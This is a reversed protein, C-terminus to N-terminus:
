LILFALIFVTRSEELSRQFEALKLDQSKEQREERRRAAADNNKQFAPLQEAMVKILRDEIETLDNAEEAAQRRTRAPPAQGLNPDFQVGRAVQPAASAAGGKTATTTTGSPATAYSTDSPDHISQTGSVPAAGDLPPASTSPLGETTHSHQEDQVLKPLEGQPSTSRCARHHVLRLAPDTSISPPFFTHVSSTPAQHNTTFSHQGTRPGPVVNACFCSDVVRHTQPLHDAVFSEACPPLSPLNPRAVRAICELM